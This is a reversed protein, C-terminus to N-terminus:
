NWTPPPYVLESLRALWGAAFEAQSHNKEIIRGYFQMRLALLHFYVERWDVVMQLRQRTQPGISGDPTAGIAMQLWKVGNGPGHQVCSDAALGFVAQDPIADLGWDHLIRVYAARAQDRTLSRVDGLGYEQATTQTLGYRTPGGRDAPLDTYADGERRIIDEVVLNIQQATLM